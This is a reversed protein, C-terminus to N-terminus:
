LLPNNEQRPDRYSRDPAGGKRITLYRPFRIILLNSPLFFFFNKNFLFFFFFSQKTFMFDFNLLFFQKSPYKAWAQSAWHSVIVECCLVTQAPSVRGLGPGWSGKGCETWRQWDSDLTLAPQAWHLVSHNQQHFELWAQRGSITEVMERNM